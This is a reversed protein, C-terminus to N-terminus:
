RQSAKGNGGMAGSSPQMSCVYIYCDLQGVCFEPCPQHLPVMEALISFAWPATFDSFCRVDEGDNLVHHQVAPQDLRGQTRIRHQGSDSLLSPSSRRPQRSLHGRYRFACVVDLLSDIVSVFLSFLPMSVLTLVM